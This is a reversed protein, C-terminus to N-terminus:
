SEKLNKTDSGWQCFLMTAESTLKELDADM